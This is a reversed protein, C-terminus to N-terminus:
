PCHGLQALNAVFFVQFAITWTRCFTGRLRVNKTGLLKDQFM